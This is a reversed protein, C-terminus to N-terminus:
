ESWLVFSPPSLFWVLLPEEGRRECVRRVCWRECALLVFRFACACVHAGECLFYFLVRVGCGSGLLRM